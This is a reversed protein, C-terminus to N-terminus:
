EVEIQTPDSRESMAHDPNTALDDLVLELNRRNAKWVADFVTGLYPISGGVVDLSVNAIMKILTGYSVGLRAAELVIYMSIAGTVLDGAVPLVGVLPDIGVRYDTGPVPVSDDLATAVLQMREVAARDVSPPLEEISADFEATLDDGGTDRM